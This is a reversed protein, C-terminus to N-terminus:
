ANSRSAGGQATEMHVALWVTPHGARTWTVRHRTRAPLHIFDGPGLIVDQAEGEIRLGARGEIVVVWEDTPQDYWFGPPSAQGFSVIREIRVQADGALLETVEGPVTDPLDARLNGSTIPPDPEDGLAPHDHFVRSAPGIRLGERGDYARLHRDTSVLYDAGGGLACALFVSDAPDEEVRVGPRPTVLAATGHYRHVMQWFAHSPKVKRLIHLNELIVEPTVLGRCVGRTCLALLRAASGEPKWRAAVLANTDMVLRLLPHGEM